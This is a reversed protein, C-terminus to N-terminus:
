HALMCLFCNSIVEADVDDKRGGADRIVAHARVLVIDISSFLSIQLQNFKSVAGLVQATCKTGCVVTTTAKCKEGKAVM